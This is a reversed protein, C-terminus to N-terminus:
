DQCLWSQCNKESHMRCGLLERLTKDVNPYQRVKDGENGFIVQATPLDGQDLARIMSRVCSIGITGNESRELQRLKELLGKDIDMNYELSFKDLM